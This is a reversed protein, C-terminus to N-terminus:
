ECKSLFDKLSFKLKKHLRLWCYGQCNCSEYFNSFDTCVKGSYIEFFSASVILDLSRYKTKQLKFIDNGSVSYICLCFFIVRFRKCKPPSFPTWLLHLKISTIVHKLPFNPIFKGLEFNGFIFSTFKGWIEHIFMHNRTLWVHCARLSCLLTLIVCFVIM